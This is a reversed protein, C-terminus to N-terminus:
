FKLYVISNKLKSFIRYGKSILLKATKTEYVSNLEYLGLQEIIILRPSYKDWNNSCLVEYEFDEVDITMFSIEKVDVPMYQDLIDELKSMKVECTDILKYHNLGDRSRATQECFTNLGPENFMFFKIKESESGVAIELNIDRPRLLNFEKMSGPKADINIGKWGKRYFLFTNSYQWPHYAGIDVFFGNDINWLIRKLLVDEGEQSFSFNSQIKLFVREEFLKILEKVLKFINSFRTSLHAKNKFQVLKEKM